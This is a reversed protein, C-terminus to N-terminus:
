SGKSSLMALITELFIKFDLFVTQYRAYYIDYELKHRADQICRGYMVHLQSLGTIGPRIFYRLRYFPIQEEYIRALEILEPRPGIMSLDGCLVNFLQPLEDLHFRRLYRGFRTVRPDNEITYMGWDGNEKLIGSEKFNMTRFKYLRFPKAFQGARLQSLLVPGPSDLRVMVAILALLPCVIILALLATIRDAVTKFLQGYPSPSLTADFAQHGQQHDMVVCAYYLETYKNIVYFRTYQAMTIMIALHHDLAYHPICLIVADCSNSINNIGKLALALAEGDPRGAAMSIIRTLSRRESLRELTAAAHDVMPVSGILIIRRQPLFAQVMRYLLLRLGLSAVTFMIFFVMTVFHTSYLSTSV